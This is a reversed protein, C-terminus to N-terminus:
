KIKHLFLPIYTLPIHIGTKCISKIISYSHLLKPSHHHGILNRVGQFSLILCKKMSPPLILVIFNSIVRFDSNGAFFGHLNYERRGMYIPVKPVVCLKIFFQYLIFSLFFFHSLITVGSVITSSLGFSQRTQAITWQQLEEGLCGGDAQSAGLAPRDILSAITRQQPRGSTQM